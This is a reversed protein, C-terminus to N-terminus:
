EARRPEHLVSSATSGPHRARTIGSRTRRCRRTSNRLLTRRTARSTSRRRSWSAASCTAADSRRAGAQHGERAAPVRAGVPDGAPIKITVDGDLTPVDVTGGLTATAFSIPVECSLHQATASSFRTSASASRSTCTARRDATAAPRARARWGSATAPTSAPRFKSRSRRRSACAARAAANAARIASRDPRTGQCRPCTQQVSFFGQQMRVQGPATAPRALSRSAHGQGRGCGTCTTANASRRSTSTVTDGFVAQELDLELEYRLDAGRFVQSRGRRGGGFIDGFVDGFIDGFADRPDCAAGGARPRRPMSVPMASNTTPRASRRTPSSRTLRRPKRSNSRPRTITRTATRTTAEDGAPSLGEQDRGGDRRPVGLVEYYDRKAM